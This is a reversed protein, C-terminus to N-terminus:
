AAERMEMEAMEAERDIPPGGNGRGRANADIEMADLDVEPAGMKGRLFNTIPDDPDIMMGASAMDRIAAAMEGLTVHNAASVKLEPMMEEPWGNMKWIPKLVDKKISECIMELTDDVMMSLQSAKEKAMALSGEGSGMLMIEIGLIRAIDKIIREIAKHLEPLTTQGGKLLEIDFKRVNSPRGADDTSTYASSDLVIGANPKKIHSSVFEEIPEALEKAKEEFSPDEHVMRKLESYPVRGMPVGCLDNELGIGELQEYRTLRRVSEVMHRFLGMGEPSDSLTDDVVYLIKGRPIYVEKSSQPIRQGIGEIENYTKSNPDDNRDWREITIQPRPSLDGLTYYGDKDKKAIIEQISFGYFKFGAARKVMRVFPRDPDKFLIKEAREKWEESAGEESQFTWEASGVLNLFYRIGAGVTAVNAMAESYVRYKERTTLTRDREREVVYGGYIATGPAGITSTPSVRRRLLRGFGGGFRKLLGGAM